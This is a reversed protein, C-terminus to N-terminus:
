NEHPCFKCYCFVECEIATACEGFRVQPVVRYAFALHQRLDRLRSHVFKISFFYQFGHGIRRTWMSVVEIARPKDFFNHKGVLRNQWKLHVALFFPCKKQGFSKRYVPFGDVFCPLSNQFQHLTSLFKRDGADSNEVRRIEARKCIDEFDVIKNMKVAVNIVFTSNSRSFVLTTIIGHLCPFIWWIIFIRFRSSGPRCCCISSM